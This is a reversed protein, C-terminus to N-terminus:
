IAILVTKAKDTFKATYREMTRVTTKDQKAKRTADASMPYRGLRVFSENHHIKGSLIEKALRDAVSNPRAWVGVISDAERNFM